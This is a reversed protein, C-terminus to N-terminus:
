NINQNTKQPPKKLSLSGYVYFMSITGLVLTHHPPPESESNHQTYCAPSPSVPIQARYHTRPCTPSSSARSGTALPAPQVAPPFWVRPEQTREPILDHENSGGKRKHNCNIIATPSCKRAPIALSVTHQRILHPPQSHQARQLLNQSYHHLVPSLLVSPEVAPHHLFAKLVKWLVHSLQALTVVM